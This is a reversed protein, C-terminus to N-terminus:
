AIVAQGYRKDILRGGKHHMPLGCFFPQLFPLVFSPPCAGFIFHRTKAAFARALYFGAAKMDQGAIRLFYDRLTIAYFAPAGEVAEINRGIFVLKDALEFGINLPPRNCM